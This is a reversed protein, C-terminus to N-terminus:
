STLFKAIISTPRGIIAQGDKFIVPREILKPNEVMADVLKDYDDEVKLNLETYIDEKTRMLEKPNMGLMTLATTIEDKTPTIKLYKVVEIECGSEELINLAARSKSCSPNHWITVQNM